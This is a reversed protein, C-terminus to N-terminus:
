GFWTDLRHFLSSKRYFFISKKIKISEFDLEPIGPPVPPIGPEAPFVPIKPIGLTGATGGPIGSKKLHTNLCKKLIKYIVLM